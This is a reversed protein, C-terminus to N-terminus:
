QLFLILYNKLQGSQLQKFQKGLLDEKEECLKNALDRGIEEPTNESTVILDLITRASGKVEEKDDESPKVLRLNTNKRDDRSRKNNSRQNMIFSHSLTYDYSEVSRSRDKFTVDCSNLTAALVDEQLRTSWIDYKKTKSNSSQRQPKSKLKVKPKKARYTKSDSDSDSDSASFLEDESESEQQDPFRKMPVGAAYNDPRLLPTYNTDSDDDVIQFNTCIFM